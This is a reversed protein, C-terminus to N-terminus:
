KESKRTIKGRSTRAKRRQILIDSSFSGVFSSVIGILASLYVGDVWSSPASPIAAYNSSQFGSKQASVITIEGLYLFVAQGNSDTYLTMKTGDEQVTVNANEVPLQSSSNTVTLTINQPVRGLPNEPSVKIVLTPLGITSLPHMFGFIWWLPIALIQTIVVFLVLAVVIFVTLFSILKKKQM